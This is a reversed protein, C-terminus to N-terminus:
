EDRLKNSENTYMDDNGEKLIWRFCEQNNSSLQFPKSLSLQCSTPLAKSIVM